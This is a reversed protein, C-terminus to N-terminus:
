TTSTPAHKGVAEFHVMRSSKACRNPRLKRTGESFASSSANLRTNSFKTGGGGSGSLYAIALNPYRAKAIRVIDFLDVALSEAHDPFGGLRSPPRGRTPDLAALSGAARPVGARRNGVVRGQSGLPIGEM